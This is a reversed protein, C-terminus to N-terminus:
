TAESTAGATHTSRSASAPFLSGVACRFGPLVDDGTLEDGARLRYGSGDARIVQIV